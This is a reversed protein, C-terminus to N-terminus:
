LLRLFRAEIDEEDWGSCGVGFSNGHKRPDVTLAICVEDIIINRFRKAPVPDSLALEHPNAPPLCLVILAPAVGALYLANDTSDLLHVNNKRSVKTTGLGLCLSTRM